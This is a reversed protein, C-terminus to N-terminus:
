RIRLIRAPQDPANVLFFADFQPFYNFRHWTGWTSHPGDSPSTDAPAAASDDAAYTERKCTWRKNATDPIIQYISTGENPWGVINGTVGDIVM